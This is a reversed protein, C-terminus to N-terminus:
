PSAFLYSQASPIKVQRCLTKLFPSLVRSAKEMNDEHQHGRQVYLQQNNILVRFFNQRGLSLARKIHELTIGQSFPQMIRDVLERVLPNYDQQCLPKSPCHNDCRPTGDVAAWSHFSVLALLLCLSALVAQVCIASRLRTKRAM